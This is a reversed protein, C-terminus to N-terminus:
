LINYGLIIIVEIINANYLLIFLPIIPNDIIDM